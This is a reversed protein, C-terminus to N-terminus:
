QHHARSNFEAHVTERPVEAAQARRDLSARKLPVRVILDQITLHLSNRPDWGALSSNVAWEDGFFRSDEAIQLATVRSRCKPQGLKNAKHDYAVDVALFGSM